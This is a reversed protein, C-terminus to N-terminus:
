SCFKKIAEENITARLKKDPHNAMKDTMTKLAQDLSSSRAEDGFIKIAEAAIAKEDAAWNRAKSSVQVVLNYVTRETASLKDSTETSEKIRNNLDPIKSLSLLAGVQADDILANNGAQKSKALESLAKAVLRDSTALDLLAEKDKAALSTGFIKDLRKSAGARVLEKSARAKGAEKAKAAEEKVVEARAKGGEKGERGPVAHAQVVFSVAVLSFMVQKFM